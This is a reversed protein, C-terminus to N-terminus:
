PVQSHGFNTGGSVAFEHVSDMLLHSQTLAWSLGKWFRLAVLLRLGLIQLHPRAQDGGRGEDGSRPKVQPVFIFSSLPFSRLPQWICATHRSGTPFTVPHGCGLLFIGPETPPMVTPKPDPSLGSCSHGWVGGCAEGGAQPQSARPLGTLSSAFGRPGRALSNPPFRSPFPNCPPKVAASWSKRQGRTVIKCTGGGWGRYCLLCDCVPYLRVM